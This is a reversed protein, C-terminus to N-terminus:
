DLFVFFGFLESLGSVSIKQGRAGHSKQGIRRM